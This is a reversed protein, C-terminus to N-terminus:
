MEKLVADAKAKLDLAAARGTKLGALVETEAKEVLGRVEQWGALNPESKAFPLCDYAARNYPWQAWFAQIRPDQAASKRIPLYGTGLSWRAAVDPSTFFKVFEWATEAQEPTTDFVCINPGYLVTHPDAPDAQPIRAMGWDAERGAMLLAVNTRGSSSRMVFAVEDQAFAMQDDFTRPAIPFALDESALTEILEFVRIAPEADFRSERGEAVEGGMSFIMGAITSCDVSVAYAAKGTQAKVKRCHDLFEDWTQPPATIGAKGLVTKNFYLMLTSKCFPFSYMHGGLEPYTNTELVVPLFDDLDEKSFGTKPDNVFSDLALVAGAQVYETTMSQYGVAMSPLVRAQMSASVKRFIDSYGGSHEVKIPLASARTANFEDALTRLLEATETTQRDWFVAAKTDIPRFKETADPDVQGPGGCGTAALLLACAMAAFALRTMTTTM